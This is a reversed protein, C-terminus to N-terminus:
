GTIFNTQDIKKRRELNAEALENDKNELERALNMYYKKLSFFEKIDILYRQRVLWYDDNCFRKSEPKEHWGLVTMDVSGDELYEELLLFIPLGVKDQPKVILNYSSNNISRVEITFGVDINNKSSMGSWCLNFCHAVAIEARAARLDQIFNEFPNKERNEDPVGQDNCESIRLLAQHYAMNLDRQSLIHHCKGANKHGKPHIDWRHHDLDQIREQDM